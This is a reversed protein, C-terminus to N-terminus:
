LAPAFIVDFFAPTDRAAMLLEGGRRPDIAVLKSFLEDVNSGSSQELRCKLLLVIALEFATVRDTSLVGRVLVAGHECYIALAKVADSPKCSLDNVSTM